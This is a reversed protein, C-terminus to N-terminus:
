HSNLMDDIMAKRQKDSGDKDGRSKGNEVSIEVVRRGWESCGLPSKCFHPARGSVQMASKEMLMHGLVGVGVKRALQGCCGKWGARRDGAQACEPLQQLAVARLIQM